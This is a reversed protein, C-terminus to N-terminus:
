DFPVHLKILIIKNTKILDINVKDHMNVERLNRRRGDKKEMNGEFGPGNAYSLTAYPLEDNGLQNDNIGFIDNKRSSYGAVSMTHSHDSTVVILTNEENTRRRALEIAKDFEITEDIAKVAETNHHAHDIRGGEIFLFYGQENRQLIDLAKNTMEALTPTTENNSDLHFPM